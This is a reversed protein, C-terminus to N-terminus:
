VLYASEKGKSLDVEIHEQITTSLTLGVFDARVPFNRHRRNVLVLTKLQRLPFDLLFKVAYVLTKGSNLVDDVLIVVSGELKLKTNLVTQSALPNSKNINLEILTIKFDAIKSLVEVIREALIFGQGAIGVLFIEKESYYNENIEHAMRNIKQDIEHKNLVVTRTTSVM